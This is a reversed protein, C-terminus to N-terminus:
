RGVLGRFEPQAPQREIVHPWWVLLIVLILGAGCALATLVALVPMKPLHQSPNIERTKVPDSALVPPILDCAGPYSCRDLPVAEVPWVKDQGVQSIWIAPRMPRGLKLKGKLQSFPPGYALFSVQSQQTSVELGTTGQGASAKELLLAANYVGFDQDSA